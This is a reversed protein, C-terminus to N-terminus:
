KGDRKTLQSLVNQNTSFAHGFPSFSYIDETSATKGNVKLKASAAPLVYRPTSPDNAKTPFSQSFLTLYGGHTDIEPQENMESNQILTSEQDFYSASGSVVRRPHHAPIGIGPPPRSLEEDKQRKAKSLLQLLAVKKKSAERFEAQIENQQTQLSQYHRQLNDIDKDILMEKETFEMSQNLLIQTESEVNTLVAQRMKDFRLLEDVVDEISKLEKSRLDVNSKLQKIDLELKKVHVCYEREEASTEEGLSEMLELNRTQDVELLESLQLERDRESQVLKIEQNIKSRAMDGERKAEELQKKKLRLDSRRAECVRKVERLSKLDSQLQDEEEQFAESAVCIDARLKKVQNMIQEYEKLLENADKNDLADDNIQSSIDEESESKKKIGEDKPDVDLKPSRVSNDIEVPAADVLQPSDGALLM